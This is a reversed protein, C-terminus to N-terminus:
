AGARRRLEYVHIVRRGNRSMGTEPAAAVLEWGPSFLREIDPRDIGRPRASGDTPFGGILLTADPAALATLSRACAERAADTLGHMCGSDVILRFGSGIQELPLATVDAQVFRVSVGAAHAKIRAQDLARAVFDVATVDWGKGALYIASDGTGCGVDLARGADRVDGLVRLRAPLAHGDWPTFGVAYMLSFFLRSATERLIAM